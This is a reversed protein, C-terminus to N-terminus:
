RCGSPGRDARVASRSSRSAADAVVRQFARTASALAAPRVSTGSIVPRSSIKSSIEGISSRPSVICSENVSGRVELLRLVGDLLALLAALGVGGREVDLGLEHVVQGTLDLGLGDEHAVEREHGVLAGEDDVAGLTDDHRLEDTRGADVEVARGLLRGVLVDVRRADDRAAACPELELDVLAVLDAHADVALALLRDGDEELGEAQGAFLDELLEGAVLRDLRVRSFSVIRVLSSASLSM